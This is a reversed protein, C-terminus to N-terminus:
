FVHLKPRLESSPAKQGLLEEADAYVAPSTPPRERLRVRERERYIDREIYIYIYICVCMNYM